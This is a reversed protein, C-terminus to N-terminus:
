LIFWFLWWFLAATGIYATIWGVIGVLGLPILALLGAGMGAPVMWWRFWDM